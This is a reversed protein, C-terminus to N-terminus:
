LRHGAVTRWYDEFVLRELTTLIVLEFLGTDPSINAAAFVSGIMSNVVANSISTALAPDLLHEKEEYIVAAQAIRSIYRDAFAMNAIQIEEASPRNSPEDAARTLQCSTSFVMAGACLLMFGARILKAWCSTRVRKSSDKSTM